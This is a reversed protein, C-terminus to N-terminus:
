KLKRLIRRAFVSLTDDRAGMVACVDGPRVLKQIRVLAAERNEPCICKPGIIADTLDRSSITRDATGGADYIPLCILIDKKAMLDSFAKAMDDLLFRTPGYGHPQFVTILRKGKRKLVSLSARIKDPNHAFDDVVGVGNKEGVLELRRKIGKFRALGKRIEAPCIGLFSCVAMAALANGVNHAGPVKLLFPEGRCTFETQWGTFKIKQPCFDNEPSLGFTIRNESKVKSAEGCDGNVILCKRTNRAFAAFMKKLEGMEQHDRSINTIVGIDPCFHVITGDSEDVEAVMLSSNGSKANGVAKASVYQKIIGGNVVSPDMGANDLVSAVMGCVTSKGSTGAIGIGFSRNFLGSLLEARHLVPISLKEAKKLESSNKEIATSIVLFDTGASLKEGNQSFLRIGQKQLKNFLRGNVKRDFSRDSGSVAHGQGRLVQALASMGSGGIGSFYYKKLDKREM